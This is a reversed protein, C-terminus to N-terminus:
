EEQLAGDRTLPAEEDDESISPDGSSPDSQEQEADGEGTLPAEEQVEDM